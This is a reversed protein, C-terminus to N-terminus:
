VDSSLTSIFSITKSSIPINDIFANTLTTNEVIADKIVISKAYINNTYIDGSNVFNKGCVINAGISISEGIAVDNRIAGDVSNVLGGINVNKTINTTSNSEFYTIGTSKQNLKQIPRLYRLDAEKFVIFGDQYDYDDINFIQSKKLPPLYTTM